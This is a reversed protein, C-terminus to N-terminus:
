FSKIYESLERSLEAESVRYQWNGGVTGPTNMRCDGGRGLYDQIPVILAHAGPMIAASILEAGSKEGLAIDERSLIPPTDHTSTYIVTGKERPEKSFDALRGRLFGYKEIIEDLKGSVVSRPVIIKAGLLVADLFDAGHAKKRQVEDTGACVAHYEFFDEFHDLRVLDYMEEFIRRRERWFRYGDKRMNDWAYAPNGSIRPKEAADDYECIINKPKQEGDLEFCEGHAWVEASDSACYMPLDGIIKIGRENAYKKLKGWQKFFKFQIFKYFDVAAGLDKRLEKCVAESKQRIEPPLSERSVYHNQEKIAMFLAYDDLWFKNREEFNRYEGDKEFRFFASRLLPFRYFFLREFDVRRPDEGFFYNGCEEETLLGERCLTDIDVFYPNGAFVSFSQYPSDGFGTPNQPLIQWLSQGSRELFDVFRFAVEGLSGIGHPSPLSSIHMLIGKEM